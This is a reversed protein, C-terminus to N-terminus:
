RDFGLLRAVIRTRWIHESRLGLRDVLVAAATQLDAPAYDEPALGLWGALFGALEDSIIATSEDFILAETPPHRYAAAAAAVPSSAIPAASM